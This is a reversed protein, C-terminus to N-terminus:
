GICFDLTTPFHSTGLAVVDYYQQVCMCEGRAGVLMFIETGKADMKRTTLVCHAANTGACLEEERDDAAKALSFPPDAESSPRGQSSSHAM